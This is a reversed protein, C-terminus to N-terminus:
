ILGCAKTLEPKFVVQAQIHNLVERANMEEKVFVEGYNAKLTNAFVSPECGMLESLASVNQGSGLAIETMLQNQNAETFHLSKQDNKVISHRACGSTGSTMAITNLFFANTTSRLASSILSNKKFVMWGVGCGSSSDSAMAFQSFLSAFVIAILGKKCVNM